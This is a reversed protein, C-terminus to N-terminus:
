RSRVLFVIVGLWGVNLVAAVKEVAERLLYEKDGMVSIEGINSQSKNM